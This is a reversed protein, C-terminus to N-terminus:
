AGKQLWRDVDEARYLIRKGLKVFQPGTGKRRMNSLSGESIGIAAALERATYAWKKSDRKM